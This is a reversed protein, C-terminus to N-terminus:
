GTPLLCENEGLEKFSERPSRTKAENPVRGKFSSALKKGISKLSDPSISRRRATHSRVDSDDEGALSLTDEIPPGSYLDRADNEEMWEQDIDSWSTRQKIQGRLFDAVSQRVSARRPPPLSSHHTQNMRYKSTTAKPTSSSKATYSQSVRDRIKSRPL